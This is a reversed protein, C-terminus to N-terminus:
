LATSVGWEHESNKENGNLDGVCQSGIIYICTHSVCVIHWDHNKKGEYFLYIKWGITHPHKREYMKNGVSNKTVRSVSIPLSENSQWLKKTHSIYLFPIELYFDSISNSLLNIVIQVLM